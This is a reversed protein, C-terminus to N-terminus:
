GVRGAAKDAGLAWDVGLWYIDVAVRTMIAGGDALLVQDAAAHNSKKGLAQGARHQGAQRADRRSMRGWCSGKIAAGGEVWSVISCAQRRCVYVIRVDYCGEHRGDVNGLEVDRGRAFRRQPAQTLISLWTRCIERENGASMEEGTVM